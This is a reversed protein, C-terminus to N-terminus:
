SKMVNEITNKGFEASDYLGKYLVYSSKIVSDEKNEENINKMLNDVELLTSHMFNYIFDDQLYEKLEEDYKSLLKIQKNTFKNNSKKVKNLIDVAKKCLGLTLEMDQKKRNLIDNIETETTIFPVENFIEDLTPQINNNTFDSLFQSFPVNKMGKINIGGETCNYFTRNETIRSFREMGELMTIFSDDTYVKDGYYGDALYAKKKALDEESYEKYYTNGEAHSKGDTYALDQGIVCVESKCIYNALELSFNAVSAGGTFDQINIGLERDLLRGIFLDFNSNFFIKKGKYEDIIQYNLASNYALPIEYDLVQQFHRYNAESGDIGVILDPKIDNKILTTVSSGAAIIFIKNRYEKLYQLQKILSPGGSAVVVPKGMRGKLDNISVSTALSKLTHIINRQWIKSFAYVTNKNLLVIGVMRRLTKLFELYTGELIKKYGLLSSEVYKGGYNTLLQLFKDKVNIFDELTTIYIKNKTEYNEMFNSYIAEIPEVILLFDQDDKSQEEFSKIVEGSGLGFVILLNKEKYISKILDDTAKIPNYISELNNNNVRPILVTKDKSEVFDIIIKEDRTIM